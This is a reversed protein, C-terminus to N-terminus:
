CSASGSGPLTSREFSSSAWIRQVYWEPFLQLERRLLADDYSPMATTMPLQQFALLRRCPMPLCHMRMAENIVDLYTQRGLDNLLLFGRELDAALIQPVNLRAEALLQAVQRLAPLGRAAAACGDRDPEARAKGASIVAFAPM